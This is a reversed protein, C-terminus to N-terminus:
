VNQHMKPIVSSSISKLVSKQVRQRDIGTLSNQYTWAHHDDRLNIFARTRPATRASTERKLLFRM